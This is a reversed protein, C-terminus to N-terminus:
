QFGIVLKVPRGHADPSAARPDVRFAVDFYTYGYEWPDRDATLGFRLIFDCQQRLAEEGCNLTTLSWEGTDKVFAELFTLARRRLEVLHDLADGSIARGRADPGGSEDLVLVELEDECAAYWEGTPAASGVETVRKFRASDMISM